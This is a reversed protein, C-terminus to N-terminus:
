GMSGCKSQVWAKYEAQSLKGNHDTDAKKFSQVLGPVKRAEKKTIYGQHATDVQNFDPYKSSCANQPDAPTAHQAMTPTQMNQQSANQPTGAFAVGVGLALLTALTTAIATKM